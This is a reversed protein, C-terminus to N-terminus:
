DTALRDESRALEALRSSLFARDADNGALELARQYQVRAEEVRGLRRLLDARVAPLLHYDPLKADLDSLLALGAEPGDAQAVAVARNLRVIPSPALDELAIYLNAIRAWATDEARVARAHEAAIAAQILYPGAEHGAASRLLTLGEAIQGADWRTRDQDPLLVVRGAADTRAARRSDQLLLLALLGRAEAEDPMLQVLLRALRIAEDALDVRVPEPGSTASHGETFILYVVTLV